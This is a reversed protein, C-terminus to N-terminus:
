NIVFLGCLTFLEVNKLVPKISFIAFSFAAHRGKRLKIGLPM